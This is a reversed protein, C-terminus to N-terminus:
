LITCVPLQLLHHSSGSISHALAITNLRGAERPQILLKPSIQPGSAAHPSCTAMVWHTLDLGSCWIQCCADNMSWIVNHISGMLWSFRASLTVNVLRCSEGYTQFYPLPSVAILLTVEERSGLKQLLMLCEALETIVQAAATPM